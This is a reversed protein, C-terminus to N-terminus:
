SILPKFMKIFSEIEDAPFDNKMKVILIFFPMKAKEVSFQNFYFAFGGREITMQHSNEAPKQFSDNLTLFYPTSNALIEKIKDDKYFQAIILSNVDLVLIGDAHIKSSFEKITNDVLESQPYLHLLVQSFATIISWLDYITTRYFTVNFENNVIKGVKDKLDSILGDIRMQNEKLFDPDM